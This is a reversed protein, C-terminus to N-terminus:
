GALGVLTILLRSVMVDNTLGILGAICSLIPDVAGQLLMRTSLPMRATYKCGKQSHYTETTKSYSPELKFRHAQSVKHPLTESPM